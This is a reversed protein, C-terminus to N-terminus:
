LYRIRTGEPLASIDIGDAKLEAILALRKAEAKAEIDRLV